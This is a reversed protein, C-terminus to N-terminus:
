FTVGTVSDGDSYTFDLGDEIRQRMDAIGSEMGARFLEVFDDVPAAPQVDAWRQHFVPWSKDSDDDTDDCTM